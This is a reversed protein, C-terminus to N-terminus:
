QPLFCLYVCDGFGRMGITYVSEFDKARQAGEVWFKKITDNNTTYDWAVNPFEISFEVPTSRMMPEQHSNNM